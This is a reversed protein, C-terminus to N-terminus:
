RTANFSNVITDIEDWDKDPAGVQVSGTVLYYYDGVRVCNAMTKVKNGDKDKGLYVNSIGSGGDVSLSMRSIRTGLGAADKGLVAIVDDINGSPFKSVDARMVAVSMGKAGEKKLDKLLTEPDQRDPNELWGQPINITFQPAVKVTPVTPFAISIPATQYSPQVTQITAPMGEAPPNLSLSMVSEKVLMDFQHAMSQRYVGVIMVAKGQNCYSITYTTLPINQYVSTYRRATAQVGSVYVQDSSLRQQLYPLAKQELANAMMESTANLPMNNNAYIEVFAEVNVPERFREALDNAPNPPDRHWTVPKKVWFNFQINNIWILDDAAHLPSSGFILMVTLIVIAQLTKKM